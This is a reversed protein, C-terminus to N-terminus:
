IWVSLNCYGLVLTVPSHDDQDEGHHHQEGNFPTRIWVSLNCYGLVLTVPSHDDQDEGHHHQEGNFP